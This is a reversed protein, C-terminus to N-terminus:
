CPTTQVDVTGNDKLFVYRSAGGRVHLVEVCSSAVTLTPPTYRFDVPAASVAGFATEAPLQRTTETGGGIAQRTYVRDGSPFDAQYQSCTRADPDTCTPEKVGSVALAATERLFGAFQEAANRTVFGKRAAASGILTVLILLSVIAVSVIAELLTLGAQSRSRRIVFSSHRIYSPTRWPVM